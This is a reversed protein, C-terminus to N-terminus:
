CIEVEIPENIEVEIGSELDIDIPSEMAVEIEMIDIELESALFSGGSSTQVISLFHAAATNPSPLSTLELMREAPTTM